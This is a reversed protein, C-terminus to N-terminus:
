PGLSVGCQTAGQTTGPADGPATGLCLDCAVTSCSCTTGRPQVLPSGTGVAQKRAFPFAESPQVRPQVLPKVLPSEQASCLGRVLGPVTHCPTGSLPVGSKPPDSCIPARWPHYPVEPWLWVLRYPIGSHADECTLPNIRTSPGAPPGFFPPVCPSPVLPASVPMSDPPRSTWM